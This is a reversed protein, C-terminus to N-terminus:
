LDAVTMTKSAGDCTIRFPTRADSFTAVQFDDGRLRIEPEVNDRLGTMYTVTQCDKFTVGNTVVDLSMANVSIPALLALAVAAAIIKKM